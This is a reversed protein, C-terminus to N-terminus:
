MSDFNQVDLQTVALAVQIKALVRCTKTRPYRCIFQNVTKERLTKNGRHACKEDHM